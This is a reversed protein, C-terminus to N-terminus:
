ASGGSGLAARARSVDSDMVVLRVAYDAFFGPNLGGEDDAAIRSRVGAAALKARAIEADGRIRYVGVTVEEGDEVDRM